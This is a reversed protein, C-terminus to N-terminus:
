IRSSQKRARGHAHFPRTKLMPAPMDPAPENRRLERAMALDLNMCVTHIDENSLQIHFPLGLIRTALNRSVALDGSTRCASFAPHEYLPPCYWRRTEIGHASLMSAVRGANAGEPLKVAFIALVGEPKDQLVVEPCLRRLEERYIM